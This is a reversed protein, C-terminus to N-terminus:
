EAVMDGGMLYVFDGVRFYAEVKLPRGQEDRESVKAGTPDIDKVVCVISQRRSEEVQQWGELTVVLVAGPKFTLPASVDIWDILGEQWHSFDNQNTETQFIQGKVENVQYM